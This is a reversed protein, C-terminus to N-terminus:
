KLGRLFITLFELTKEGGYIDILNAALNYFITENVEANGKERQERTITEDKKVKNIVFVTIEMTEELMARYEKKNM